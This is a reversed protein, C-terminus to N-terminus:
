DQTYAFDTIKFYYKEPRTKLVAVSVEKEGDKVRTQSLRAGSSRNISLNLPWLNGKDDIGGLQIEHVHDADMRESLPRFGYRRLISNLKEGGKTGQDSLPGVVTNREIRYAPDIGIDNGGPLHGKEHPKYARIPENSSDKLGENHM